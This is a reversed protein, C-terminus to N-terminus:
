HLAAQSYFQSHEFVSDAPKRCCLCVQLCAWPAALGICVMAIGVAMGVMPLSYLSNKDLIRTPIIDLMILVQM